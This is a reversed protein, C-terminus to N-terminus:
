RLIKENKSNKRGVLVPAFLISALALIWIRGKFFNYDTLLKEWSNGFVYHGFVFEFLVTIALWIVGIIYLDKKSYNEKSKNLFLWTILFLIPIFILTSIQHGFLEGVYKQYVFNRIFGNIVAAFTLLLWVGLSKIYLKKM